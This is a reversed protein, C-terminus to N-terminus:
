YLDYNYISQSIFIPYRSVIMIELESAKRRIRTWIDMTFITASSNFISALSGILSALMVSMMLGRLVTPMLELVLKPYAIDTCGNEKDCVKKCITPDVCGIEDPFLIRSIMGPFVMIFLPLFKLYGTLICGLKAHSLNKASLARQVIM